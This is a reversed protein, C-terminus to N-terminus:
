LFSKWNLCRLTAAYRQESERAQFSAWTNYGMTTNIELGGCRSYKVRVDPRGLTFKFVGDKLEVACSTAGFRRM